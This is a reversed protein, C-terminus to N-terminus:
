LKRFPGFFPSCYVIVRNRNKIMRRATMAAVANALPQADDRGVVESAGGSAASFDGSAV